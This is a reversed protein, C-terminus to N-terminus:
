HLLLHPIAQTIPISGLDEPFAALGRVWLAMERTGFFLKLYVLNFLVNCIEGEEM